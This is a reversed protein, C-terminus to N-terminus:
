PSRDHFLITKLGMEDTFEECAGLQHFFELHVCVELFVADLRDRLEEGLIPSLLGDRKPTPHKMEQLSQLRIVFFIHAAALARDTLSNHSVGILGLFTQELGGLDIILARKVVMNIAQNMAESSLSVLGEKLQM